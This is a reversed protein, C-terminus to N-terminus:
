AVLKKERLFSSPWCCFIQNARNKRRLKRYRGVASEAGVHAGPQEVSRMADEEADGHNPERGDGNIEARGENRPRQGVVDFRCREVRSAREDLRGVPM